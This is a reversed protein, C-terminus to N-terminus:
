LIGLLHHCLHAPQPLPIVTSTAAECAFVTDAGMDAGMNAGWKKKAAASGSCCPPPCPRTLVSGALAAPGSGCRTRAPGPLGTCPAALSSPSLWALKQSSRAACTSALSEPPQALLPHALARLPLLGVAPSHMTYCHVVTAALQRQHQQHPGTATASSDAAGAAVATAWTSVTAGWVGELM